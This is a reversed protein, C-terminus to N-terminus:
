SAGTSELYAPKPGEPTGPIFTSLSHGAGEFQFMPIDIVYGTQFRLGYDLASRVANIRCRLQSAHAASDFASRLTPIREAEVLSQASATAGIAPVM